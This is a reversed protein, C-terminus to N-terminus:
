ARRSISASSATCRSWWRCPSRRWADPPPNRLAHWHRASGRWGLAFVGYLARARRAHARDRMTALDPILGVYLFVISFLLYSLIAWFDWVLASRWQPWLAM